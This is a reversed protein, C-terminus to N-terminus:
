PNASPAAPYGAKNLAADWAQEAYGELKENGVMLTPVRATGGGASLEKNADVSTSPDKTTYTIGRRALHAKARDCHVGCTATTYLTVPNKLKAQAAGGDQNNEAANNSYNRQTANKASSPPPQDTYHIGGDADVWRYFPAAVVPLALLTLILPALKMAHTPQRFLHKVALKLFFEPWAMIGCFPM